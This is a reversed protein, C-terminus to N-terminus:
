TKGRAETSHKGCKIEMTDLLPLQVAHGGGQAAHESRRGRRKLLSEPSKHLRHNKLYEVIALRIFHSRSINLNDSIETILQAMSEHCSITLVQMCKRLLKECTKSTPGPM